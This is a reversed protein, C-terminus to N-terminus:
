AASDMEKRGAITSRPGIRIDYVKFVLHLVVSM